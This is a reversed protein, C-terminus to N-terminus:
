GGAAIGASRSLHSSNESNGWAAKNERSAGDTASTAMFGGFQDGFDVEVARLPRTAGDDVDPQVKKGPEFQSGSGSSSSSSPRTRKRNQDHRCRLVRSGSKWQRRAWLLGRRSDRGLSSVFPCRGGKVCTFHSAERGKQVGQRLDERPSVEAARERHLYSPTVTAAALSATAAALPPTVVPCAFPLFLFLSIIIIAAAAAAAAAAPPPPPAPSSPYSSPRSPSLRAAVVVVFFILLPLLEEM